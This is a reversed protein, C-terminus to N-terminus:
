SETTPAPSRPESSAHAVSAASAATVSRRRSPVITVGTVKRCGETSPRMTVVTSWTEPPRASSPSPMPQNSPSCRAAPM